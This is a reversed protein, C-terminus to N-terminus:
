IKKSNNNKQHLKYTKEADAIFIKEIDYIMILENRFNIMGTLEEKQGPILTEVPFENQEVVKTLDLVENAIFGIKISSTNLIFIKDTLGIEKEPFEFKRRFNIMPVAEGNVNIIGLISPPSNPIPMINVAFVVRNVSHVPVAFKHDHVIFLVFRDALFDISANPHKVETVKEM